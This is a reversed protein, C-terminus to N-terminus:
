KKTGSVNMDAEMRERIGWMVSVIRAANFPICHCDVACAVTHYDLLEHDCLKLLPRVGM